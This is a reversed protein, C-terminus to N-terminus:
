GGGLLPLLLVRDSTHLLDEVEASKGNVLVLVNNRWKPGVRNLVTRVPTGDPVELMTEEGGLKMHVKVLAM